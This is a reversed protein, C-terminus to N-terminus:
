YTSMSYEVEWTSYCTAMSPWLKSQSRAMKRKLPRMERPIRSQTKRTHDPTSLEILAQKTRIM